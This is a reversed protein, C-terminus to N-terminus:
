KTKPDVRLIVLLSTIDGAPPEQGWVAVIMYVGAEKPKCTTRRGKVGNGGIWVEGPREKPFKDMPHTLELEVLGDFKTAPSTRWTNKFEYLVMKKMEADYHGLIVTKYNFSIVSTKFTEPVTEVVTLEEGVELKESSLTLTVAVERKNPTTIEDGKKPPEGRPAPQNATSPRDLAQLLVISALVVSGALALRKTTRKM